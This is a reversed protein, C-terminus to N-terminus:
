RRRERQNALWATLARLDELDEVDRRVRAIGRAFTVLDRRIATEVHAPAIRAHPPADLQYRWHDEASTLERELQAVQEVLLRNFHVLREDALGDIHARDVQEVRLQLELLALLDGSEYAANVEQMLTTKRAREVDDREHDPHLALALKRFIDQLARSTDARERERATQRAAQKASKKRSARRAAEREAAAAEEREREELAASVQAELDDLSAVKGDIEVGLQDEILEKMMHLRAARDREADADFDRRTHRNYLAKIEETPAVDLLDRALEAILHGLLKKDRVSLGKRELQRDLLRALEGMGAYYERRMREHDAVLQQLMPASTSWAAIMKRIREVKKILMNFRQQHKGLKRAEQPTIRLALSRDSARM